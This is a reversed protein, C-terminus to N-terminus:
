APLVFTLALRYTSVVPLLVFLPKLAACLDALQRATMGPERLQVASIGHGLAASVIEALRCFDGRGDTILVTRLSEPLPKM